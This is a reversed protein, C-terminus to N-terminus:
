LVTVGKEKLDLPYSIKGLLTNFVINGKVHYEVDKNSALMELVTSLVGLGSVQLPLEFKTSQGSEVYIKQGPELNGTGIKNANAFLEYDLTDIDLAVPNNNKLELVLILKAGQMSIGTLHVECNSAMWKTVYPIGNIALLAIALLVVISWLLFNKKKM